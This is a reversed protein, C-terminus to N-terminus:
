PFVHSWAVYLGGALALEFTLRRAARGAEKAREEKINKGGVLDRFRFPCLLLFLGLLCGRRGNEM